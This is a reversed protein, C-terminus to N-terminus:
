SPPYAEDPSLGWIANRRIWGDYQRVSVKCWGSGSACTRITGVTGAKLVAVPASADDAASRLIVSDPIRSVDALSDIHGLVQSETHKAPAADDKGGGAKVSAGAQAPGPAPSQTPAQAVSAAGGPTPIVFDRSGVLTAQHVWGKVGDSDEVLRWVDFEREIRVPLGRRHYIWQVPYRQGPGARLNVDDARLAAFRPLPLGTNSGKDIDAPNSTGDPAPAGPAGDVPPAGDDPLAAGAAAGAVAAGAALRAAHKRHHAGAAPHTATKEDTHTRAHSGATAKGKKKASAVKKGAAPKGTATKSAAAHTAKHAATTGAAAKATSSGPKHHHHHESAPTAAHAGPFVSLSTTAVLLTAAVCLSRSAIMRADTGLGAATPLHTRANM